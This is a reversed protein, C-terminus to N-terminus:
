INSSKDDEGGVCFDIKAYQLGDLYGMYYGDLDGADGKSILASIEMMKRNIRETFRM